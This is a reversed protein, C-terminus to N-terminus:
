SKSRKSGYNNLPIDKNVRKDAMYLIRDSKDFPIDLKDVAERLKLLYELYLKIQAQVDKQTVTLERKYIVRYVRQDIIQYVKPNKFRLITSAMALQIGKTSPDLLDTLIDSTLKEDLIESQAISNIKNITEKKIQAYRNVKWLVIENIIEQNFPSDVKDLRETLEKQYNFTHDSDVLNFGPDSYVKVKIEEQVAM